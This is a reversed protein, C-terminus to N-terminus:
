EYNIVLEAYRKRWEDTKIEFEPFLVKISDCHTVATIKICNNKAVHSVNFNLESYGLRTLIIDLYDFASTITHVKITTHTKTTM